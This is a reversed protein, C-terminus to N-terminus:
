AQDYAMQLKDIEIKKMQYLAQLVRESRVPDDDSTLKELIAPVVQWSVGFRDQVWGCPMEEGGDGFANWFHDIEVQDKCSVMFSIAPTLKFAPGGNLAVFEHGDIQFDVTLVSGEPMGSVAAGSKTYLTTKMIRGDKFTSTYFKAAEEAQNDFWLCPTIKQM